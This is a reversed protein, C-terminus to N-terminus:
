LCQHILLLTRALDSFNPGRLAIKPKSSRRDFAIAPLLPDPTPFDPSVGAQSESSGVALTHRDNTNWHVWAASKIPNM